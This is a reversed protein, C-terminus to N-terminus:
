VQADSAGNTTRTASHQRPPSLTCSNVSVTNTCGIGEGSSVMETTSKLGSSLTTASFFFSKTAIFFACAAATAAPPSPAPPPLPPLRPNASMALSNACSMFCESLLLSLDNWPHTHRSKSDRPAATAEAADPLPLALSCLVMKSALARLVSGSCASLCLPSVLSADDSKRNCIGEPVIKEM